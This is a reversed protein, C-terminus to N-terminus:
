NIEPIISCDVPIWKGISESTPTPAITWTGNRKFVSIEYTWLGGGMGDKWPGWKGLAYRRSVDAGLRSSGMWQWGNLKNAQTLPKADITWRANQLALWERTGGYAVYRTEECHQVRSDWFKDIQAKAEGLSAEQARLSSVVCCMLALPLIKM